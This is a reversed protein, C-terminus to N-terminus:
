LSMRALKVIKHLGYVKPRTHDGDGWLFEGNAWWFTYGEGGSEPRLTVHSHRGGVEVVQGNRLAAKAADEDVTQGVGEGSALVFSVNALRPKYRRPAPRYPTWKTDNPVIELAM